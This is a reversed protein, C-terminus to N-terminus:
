LLANDERRRYLLAWLMLKERPVGTSELLWAAQGLTAGTTLVDDCLIYREASPLKKTRLILSERIRRFRGAEGLQKNSKGWRGKKLFYIGPFIQARPVASLLLKALFNRSSPMPLFVSGPEAIEKLACHAARFMFEQARRRGSFKAAKFLSKQVGEYFFLYKTEYHANAVISNGQPRPVDRLCPSCVLGVEPLRSKCHLCFEPFFAQLLYDRILSVKRTRLHSSM